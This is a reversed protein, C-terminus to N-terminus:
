FWKDLCFVKIALFSYNAEYIFVVSDLYLFRERLYGELLKFLMESLINFLYIQLFGWLRLLNKPFM